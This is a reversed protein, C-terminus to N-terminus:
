PHIQNIKKSIDHLAFNFTKVESESFKAPKGNVINENLRQYLWEKSKKFYNKAIYSFPIIEKNLALHCSLRIEDLTQESEEELKKSMINFFDDIQKIESESTFDNKLLTYQEKFKNVDLNLFYRELKELEIKLEM